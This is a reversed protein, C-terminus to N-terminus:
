LWKANQKVQAVQNQRDTIDKQLVVVKKDNVTKGVEIGIQQALAGLAIESMQQQQMYRPILTTPIKGSFGGNSLSPLRLGNSQIGANNLFSVGTGKYTNLADAIQLPTGQLSIIDKSALARKNIIAEGAEVNIFEGGNAHSKGKILMGKEAKKMASVEFATKVGIAAAAFLSAPFPTTALVNLVAAIGNIIAMRVKLRKEDELAKENLRAKYLANRKEIELKQANYQEESILGAEKQAELAMMEAEARKDYYEIDQALQREIERAKADTISSYLQNALGVAADQVAKANEADLGFADGIGQTVGATAGTRFKNAKDVTKSNASAGTSLTEIESKLARLQQIQAETITGSAKLEAELLQFKKQAVDLAIAKKADALKVENTITADAIRLQLAAEKDLQEAKYQYTKETEAKTKDTYKKDIEALKIQHEEQRLEILTNITENYAIEDATLTEKEILQKQLDSIENFFRNAQLQKEKQIGDALNNLESEISERQIKELDAALKEAAKLDDAEAKEQEKQLRESEKAADKAQKDAAQQAAKQEAAAKKAAADREAKTQQAKQKAAEEAAKIERSQKEVAKKTALDEVSGNYADKFADGIGKGEKALTERKAKLKAIEKDITASSEGFPNFKKAELAFIKLQLGMDTFADEINIKMQKVAAIIGKFINPLDKLLAFLNTFYTRMGDVILSLVPVEKILYNVYNLFEAFADIVFTLVGAVVEFVDGLITGKEAAENTADGTGFLMNVYEGIIEFLNEFSDIVPSFADILENLTEILFAQAEIKLINFAGSEDQLSKTLENKATELRKTAATLNNTKDLYAQQEKTLELTGNRMDTITELYKLGVESLIAADEGAGRFVDAILTQQETIPLNSERIKNVFIGISEGTSVTGDKIDKFFKNAYEVGFAKQFADQTSKAQERVSLGYEKVADIGKDDYFGLLENATAADIFDSAALGAEKYQAPYEKVIELFNGSFNAGEKFGKEIEALAEEFSIENITGQYQKMLKNAADLIENQETGYVKAITATKIVINDLSEGTENSLLAAEDRLKGFEQVVENIKTFAFGAAAAVAGLALGKGMGQGLSSILNGVEGFGGVLDFLSERYRGVNSRGDNLSKDYDLIEQRNKAVTDKLEDYAANTMTIGRVERELTFALRKTEDRLNGMSGALFGTEKQAKKLITAEETRAKKLVNLEANIKTLQETYEKESILGQNYADKLDKRRQTVKELAVDIETIKKVTESYGLVEIEFAITQQAM